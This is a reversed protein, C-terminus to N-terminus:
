TRKVHNQLLKIQFFLILLFYYYFFILLYIFLFNCKLIGETEPSFNEPLVTRHIVEAM